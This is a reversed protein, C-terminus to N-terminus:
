GLAIVRDLAEDVNRKVYEDRISRAPQGMIRSWAYELIQRLRINSRPLREWYHRRKVETLGIEDKNHYLIAFADHFAYRRLCDVVAQEMTEVLLGEMGVYRLEETTYEAHIEWGRTEGFRELAKAYSRDRVKLVCSDRHIFDGNWISAATQGSLVKFNMDMRLFDYVDSMKAPVWYWGWMVRELAGEKVLSSLYEKAHPKGVHSVKVLSGKFRTELHRKFKRLYPKM